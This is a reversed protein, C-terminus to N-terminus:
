ILNICVRIKHTLLLKQAEAITQEIISPPLTTCDIQIRIPMGKSQPYNKSLGGEIAFHLYSNLKRLLLQEENETGDWDNVASIILVYEGEAPDFTILDIKEPTQLTIQM